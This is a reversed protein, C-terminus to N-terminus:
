LSGHSNNDTNETYNRQVLVDKTHCYYNGYEFVNQQQMPHNQPFMAMPNHVAAHPQVLAQSSVQISQCIGAGLHQMTNSIGKLAESFAYNSTKMAEVLDRRCQMEQKSEEVLLRDRQAASLNRELFRRKNDVM